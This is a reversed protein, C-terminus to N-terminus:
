PASSRQGTASNYCHQESVCFKTTPIVRGWWVKQPKQTFCFHLSEHKMLPTQQAGPWLIREPITCGPQCHDSMDILLSAKAEMYQATSSAPLWPLLLYREACNMGPTSEGDRGSHVGLSLPSSQVPHGVDQYKSVMWAVMTGSSSWSLGWALVRKWRGKGRQGVRHQGATASLNLRSEPFVRSKRLPGAHTQDGGFGVCLVHRRKAM